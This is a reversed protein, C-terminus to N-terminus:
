WSLSKTKYQELTFAPKSVGAPLPQKAFGQFYLLCADRWWVADREQIALKKSVEAHRAPEIENSLKDWQKRTMQVWEVGRQYHLALEDWLTKGSRMRHNWPVHIEM